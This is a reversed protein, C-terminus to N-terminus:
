EYELDCKYMSIVDLCNMYPNHIYTYAGLHTYISTDKPKYLFM